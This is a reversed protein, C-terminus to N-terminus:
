ARVPHAAPHKARRTRQLLYIVTLLILGVIIGQIRSFIIPFPILIAAVVLVTREIMNLKTLMWGEFGIVVLYIALTASSLALVIEMISGKLMIPANYILMYPIIYGAV